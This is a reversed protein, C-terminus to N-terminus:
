GAADYRAWVLRVLAPHVGIPEAAFGVGDVARHVAAVFEGEALLYTAVQVPAPMRRLQTPLGDGVTLVPVDRGLREALLRGTEALEGAAEPRTSGSGVLVTSAGRPVAALRDVLADVLLPDPGLHRATRVQPYAAVAAPIDSQVHYGTSLLLPVLVTSAGASGALTAPLRPQAVDLFCLQVPVDPRDAAIADRIRALTASGTPSATGHAVLLLM